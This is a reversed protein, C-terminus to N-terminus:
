QGASLWIETQNITGAVKSYRITGDEVPESKNTDSCRQFGCRQQFSMKM